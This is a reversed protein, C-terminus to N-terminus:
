SLPVQLECPCQSNKKEGQVSVKTGVRFDNESHPSSAKVAQVHHNVYLQGTLRM